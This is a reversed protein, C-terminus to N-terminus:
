PRTSIRIGKRDLYMNVVDLIKGCLHHAELLYHFNLITTEDPTAARGLDADAFGRLVPSEYLADETGPGLPKNM